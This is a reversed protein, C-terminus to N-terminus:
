KQNTLKLHYKKHAFFDLKQFFSTKPFFKMKKSIKATKPKNKYDIKMKDYFLM